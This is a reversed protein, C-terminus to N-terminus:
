HFKGLFPWQGLALRLCPPFVNVTRRSVNKSDSRTFEPNVNEMVWSSVSLNLMQPSYFSHGLVQEACKKLSRLRGDLCFMECYM